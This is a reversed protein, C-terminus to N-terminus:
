IPIPAQSPHPTLRNSHNSAALLPTRAAEILARILRQHPPDELSLEPHWQVGIAFPHQEHELGEIVGDPAIANIRWGPPVTRVAQHHFSVVDMETVKTIQALHTGPLVQVSHRAPPPEAARHIVDNGFEEPIHPVMDGGSIVAMVELGRCIGLIPLQRSLALECLTFEFQDREPDVNYIAPHEAGNYRCPDIDGGGILVLGALPELMASLDTQVPPLLLPVGGSQRIAEVYLGPLYFKGTEMPSYISIGILPPSTVAIM